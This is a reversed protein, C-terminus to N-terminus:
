KGFGKVSRCVEAPDEAQFVASGMVLIDAGKEILSQANSPSVGGDVMIEYTLKREKRMRDLKEVKDYTREIFKQGSFGPNVSMILIGDAFHVVDDLVSVPTHPNIAVFAKIGNEKIKRVMRYLNTCTEYHITIIAPSHPIFWEVHEMPNTVMLHVDIPVHTIKKVFKTLFPGFSLNPVFHGDMVDFHIYDIYSEVKKIERELNSFDAALISPAIKVM